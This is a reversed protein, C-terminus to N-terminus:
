GSRCSTASVVAERGPRGRRGRCARRPRRARMRASVTKYPEGWSPRFPNYLYRWTGPDLLTKWGNSFTRGEFCNESEIVREDVVPELGRATALPAATERVRELPSIRLHVIDRDGITDAVRQAMANGLESLHFGPRRGYLM